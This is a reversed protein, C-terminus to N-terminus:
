QTICNVKSKKDFYNDFRKAAEDTDWVLANTTFDYLAGVAVNSGNKYVIAVAYENYLLEENISYNNGTIYSGIHIVRGNSNIDVINYNLEGCIKTTEVLAVDSNLPIIKKSM